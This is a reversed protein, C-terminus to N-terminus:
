VSGRARTFVRSIGDEMAHALRDVRRELWSHALTVPIALSLGVATTLLAQWIGGSLLAPDVQSGATEISQFADIMGIVTGLLGLLPSVLAVFELPRLLGRLNELHQSGVRLGEERAIDITQGSQLSAMASYVSHELPQHSGSLLELAADTNGNAWNSLADNVPRRRGIRSGAFQWTKILVIALSFVALGFLVWVIIGGREVLSNLYNSSPWLWGDVIWDVTKM